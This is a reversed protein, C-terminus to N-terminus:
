LLLPTRCHPAAIRSRRALVCFCVDPVDEKKEGSGRRVQKAPRSDSLPLLNRAKMIWNRGKNIVLLIIWTRPFSLEWQGRQKLDPM